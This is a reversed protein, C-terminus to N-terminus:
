RRSGGRGKRNRISNQGAVFAAVVDQSLDHSARDILSMVREAEFTWEEILNTLKDDPQHVVNIGFQLLMALENLPHHTEFFITKTGRRRSFM